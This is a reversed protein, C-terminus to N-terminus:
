TLSPPPRSNLDFIISQFDIINKVNHYKITKENKSYDIKKISQLSQNKNLCKQCQHKILHNQKNNCSVDSISYEGHYEHLYDDVHVITAIILLSLGYNIINILFTKVNYIVFIKLINKSKIINLRWM